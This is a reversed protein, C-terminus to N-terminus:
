QGEYCRCLEFYSQHKELQNFLLQQSCCWFCNFDQYLHLCIGTYVIEATAKYSEQSFINHKLANQCM